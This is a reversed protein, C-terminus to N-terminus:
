WLKNLFSAAANIKEVNYSVDEGPSTNSTLFLRLADAGYQDIIQIPDVGNNLSKSMKRNHEDLILGHLLLDHFPISKKLLWSMFIMRLVWFFVIDYATVLM